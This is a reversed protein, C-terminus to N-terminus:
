SALYDNEDSQVLLLSKTKIAIGPILYQYKIKIQRGKYSHPSFNNPNHVALISDCFVEWM